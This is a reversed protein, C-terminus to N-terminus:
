TFTQGHFIKLDSLFIVQETIRHKGKGHNSAHHFVLKNIYNLHEVEDIQFPQLSGYKKIFFPVHHVFVHM